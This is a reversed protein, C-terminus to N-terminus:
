LYRTTRGSTAYHIQIGNKGDRNERLSEQDLEEKMKVTILVGKMRRYCV